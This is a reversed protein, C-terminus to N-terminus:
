TSLGLQPATDVSNAICPQLWLAHLSLAGTAAAALLERFTVDVRIVTNLSTCALEPRQGFIAIDGIQSSPEAVRWEARM